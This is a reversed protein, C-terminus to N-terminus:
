QKTQKIRPIKLTLDLKNRSFFPSIFWFKFLRFRVSTCPTCKNPILSKIKSERMWSERNKFDIINLLNYFAPPM